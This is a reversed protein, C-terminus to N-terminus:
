ANRRTTHVELGIGRRRGRRQALAMKVPPLIGRDVKDAQQAGILIDGDIHLVAHAADAADPEIVQIRREVIRRDAPQYQRRGILAVEHIRISAGLGLQIAGTDAQERRARRHRRVGADLHHLAAGIEVFDFLFQRSGAVLALLHDQQRWRRDRRQVRLRLNRAIQQTAHPEVKVVLRQFPAHHDRPAGALFRRLLAAPVDEDGIQGAEVVHEHRRLDGGRAGFAHNPQGFAGLNSTSRSAHSSAAVSASCFRRTRSM